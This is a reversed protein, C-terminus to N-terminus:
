ATHAVPPRFGWESEIADLFVALEKEPSAQFIEADM